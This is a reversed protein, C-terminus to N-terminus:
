HLYGDKYRKYDEMTGESEETDEAWNTAKQTPLLHPDEFEGVHSVQEGKPELGHETSYQRDEPLGNVKNNLVDRQWDEKLELEFKRLNHLSTHYNKEVKSLQKTSNRGFINFFKNRAIIYQEMLNDYKQIIRSPTLTKPRRNKSFKKKNSQNTKNPNSASKSNPKPNNNPGTKNASASINGSKNKNNNKNKNNYRRRNNNRRKNNSSNQNNSEDSM